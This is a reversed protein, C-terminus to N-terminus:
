GSLKRMGHGGCILTPSLAMQEEYSQRAITENWTNAGTSPLLATSTFQISDGSFLVKQNQLFFSIHEPTHGPTALVVLGGLIPLIDGPHLTGDVACPKTPMFLGGLKYFLKEIGHPSLPRSMVGSTIAVSEIESAFLKAHTQQLLTPAGGIHDGDAHTILVKTLQSIDRGLQHLLSTLAKPTFSLGSDILILDAPTIILYCSVFGSKIRFVNQAIEM